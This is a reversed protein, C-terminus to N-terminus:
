FQPSSKKWKIGQNFAMICLCNSCIRAKRGRYICDRIEPVIRQCNCCTHYDNWISKLLEYNPYGCLSDIAFRPMNVLIKLDYIQVTVNSVGRENKLHRALAYAHSRDDFTFLRWKQDIRFVNYSRLDKSWQVAYVRRTKRQDAFRLISEEFESAFRRSISYILDEGINRVSVQM